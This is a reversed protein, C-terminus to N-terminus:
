ARYREPRTNKEILTIAQELSEVMKESYGHHRLLGCLESASYRANGTEVIKLKLREIRRALTTARHHLAARLEQAALREAELALRDLEFQRDAAEKAIIRDAAGKEWLVREIEEAAHTEQKARAEGIRQEFGPITASLVKSWPKLEDREALQGAVAVEFSRLAEAILEAAPRQLAIARTAAADAIRSSMIPSRIVSALGPHHEMSREHLEIISTTYGERALDETNMELDGQLDAGIPETHDPFIPRRAITRLEGVAATAADHSDRWAEGIQFKEFEAVATETTKTIDTKESKTQTM